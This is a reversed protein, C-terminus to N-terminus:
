GPSCRDSRVAGLALMLTASQFRAQLRDPVLAIRYPGITSSWAESRPASLAGFHPEIAYCAWLRRFAAEIERLGKRPRLVSAHVDCGPFTETGGNRHYTARM